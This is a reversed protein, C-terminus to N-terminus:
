GRILTAASDFLSNIELRDIELDFADNQPMYVDIRYNKDNRDFLWSGINYDGYSYGFDVVMNAGNTLKDVLKFVQDNVLDIQLVEESDADRILDYPKILPVDHQKTQMSINQTLQRTAENGKAMSDNLAKVADPMGILMGDIYKNADDKMNELTLRINPQSAYKTVDSLVGEVPMKYKDGLSKDLGKILADAYDSWLDAM